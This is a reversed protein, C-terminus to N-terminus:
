EIRMRNRMPLRLDTLAQRPPLRHLQNLGDDFRNVTRSITEALYHASLIGPPFIPFKVLAVLRYTILRGVAWQGRPLSEKQRPLFLRAIKVASVKSIETRYLSSVTQM